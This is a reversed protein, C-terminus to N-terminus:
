DSRQADTVSGPAVAGIANSKGDYMKCYAIFVNQGSQAPYGQPAWVVSQFYKTQKFTSLNGLRNNLLTKNQSTVYCIVRGQTDPNLYTVTEDRLGAPAALAGVTLCSLLTLVIKVNM